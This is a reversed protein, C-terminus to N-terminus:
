APLLRPRLHAPTAAWCPPCLERPDFEDVLPQTNPRGTRGCRAVPRIGTHDHYHHDLVHVLGGVAHRVFEIAEFIM